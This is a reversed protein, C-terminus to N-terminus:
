IKPELHELYDVGDYYSNDKRGKSLYNVLFIIGLVILVMFLVKIAAKIYKTPSLIFDGLFALPMFPLLFLVESFMAYFPLILLIVIGIVILEKIGLSGNRYQIYFLFSFFLITLAGGVVMFLRDHNKIYDTAIESIRILANGISQRM